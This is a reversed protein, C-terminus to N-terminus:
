CRAARASRGVTDPGPLRLQADGPDHAGRDTRGGVAGEARPHSRLPAVTKPAYDNEALANLVPKYLRDQLTAKGRGVNVDLVVDDSHCALTFALGNIAERREIPSLRRIAKIFTDRRFQQNVM